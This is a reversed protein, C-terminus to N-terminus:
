ESVPSIFSKRFFEMLVMIFEKELAEAESLKEKSSLVQLKGSIRELTGSSIQLLDELSLDIERKLAVDLDDLIGAFIDDCFRRAVAKDELSDMIEIYDERSGPVFMNSLIKQFENEYGFVVNKIIDELKKELKIRVEPINKVVVKGFEDAVQPASSKLGSALNNKLEPLQQQIQYRVMSAVDGPQLLSKVRVYIWSLYCIVFPLLICAVIISIKKSKRLTSSELNLQEELKDEM